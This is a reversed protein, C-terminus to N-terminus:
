RGEMAWRVAQMVAEPVESDAEGEPQTTQGDTRVQGTAGEHTWDGCWWGEGLDRWEHWRVGNPAEGLQPSVDQHAEGTEVTEHEVVADIIHGLDEVEDRYVDVADCGLLVEGYVDRCLDSLARASLMADPYRGWNAKLEKSQGGKKFCIGRGKAQEITWTRSFEEDPDDVRATTWTARQSGKETCRLYRALGSRRVLAQILRASLFARGDVLYIERLAATVGVGLELGTHIRLLVDATQGTLEGLSRAQALEYAMAKAEQPSTPVLATRAGLVLGRAHHSRIAEDLSTKRM